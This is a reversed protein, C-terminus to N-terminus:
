FRQVTNGEVANRYTSAPNFQSCEQLELKLLQSITPIHLHSFHKFSLERLGPLKFLEDLLEDSSFHDGIKDEGVNERQDEDEPPFLILQQVQDIKSRIRRFHHLKIQLSRLSIKWDGKIDPIELSGNRLILNLSLQHYSNEILKLISRRQTQTILFHELGNHPELTIKRVCISLERCYLHNVRAYKLRDALTVYSLIELHLHVSLYKM